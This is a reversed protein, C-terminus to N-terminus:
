QLLHADHIVVAVGLAFMLGLAIVRARSTLEVYCAKM